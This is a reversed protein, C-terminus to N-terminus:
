PLVAKEEADVHLDAQELQQRADDLPGPTGNLEALLDSVRRKLRGRQAQWYTIAQQHAAVEPPAWLSVFVEIMREVFLAVLLMSGFIGPVLATFNAQFALAGAQWSAALAVAAVCLLACAVMLGKGARGQVGEDNAM